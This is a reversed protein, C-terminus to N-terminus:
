SSEWKGEVGYLPAMGYLTVSRCANLALITSFLASSAYSANSGSSMLSVHADIATQTLLVPSKIRARLLAVDAVSPHHPQTRVLMVGDGSAVHSSGLADAQSGIRSHDLIVVTSRGGGHTFARDHPPTLDQRLVADHDDIAAGLEWLLLSNSPGVVACSGM